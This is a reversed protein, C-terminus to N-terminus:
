IIEEMDDDDSDDEEPMPDPIDDNTMDAIRPGMSPTSATPAHIYTAPTAPVVPPPLPPPPQFVPISEPTPPNHTPITGAAAPQPVQGEFAHEEAQALEVLQAALLALQAQLEARPDETSGDNSTQPPPAHVSTPAASGSQSAAANSALMAQVHSLLHEVGNDTVDDTTETSSHEDRAQSDKQREEPPLQYMSGFNIASLINQAAEYADASDTETASLTAAAPTKNTAPTTPAGPITSPATSTSPAPQAPYGPYGVHSYPPYGYPQSPYPPQAAPQSTTTAPHGHHHHVLPAHTFPPAPTSTSPASQANQTQPRRTTRRTTNGGEWTPNLRYKGNSSKEFRGRKYAKQLAQGASPRFNSQLPYRSAMWSFLVKPAWGEPDSCGTLAEVIMEEYSPLDDTGGVVDQQQQQQQIPHSIPVMGNYLSPQPPYAAPPQPHYANQMPNAYPGYPYSYGGSPQAYYPSIPYTAQPHPHHGYGYPQHPYQPHPPIPAASAASAAPQAPEPATSSTSPATQALPSAPSEAAPISPTTSASPDPATPPAEKDPPQPETSPIVDHVAATSESRSPSKLSDMVAPEGEKPTEEAAQEASPQAVNQLGAIAANIDPPWVTSKIYPPVHIDFTLCIEIIQQPPLLTLYQRKLEHDQPGSPLQYYSHYHSHPLSSAYLSSAVQM